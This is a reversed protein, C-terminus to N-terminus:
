LDDFEFEIKIRNTKSEMQILLQIFKHGFKQAVLEQLEFIKDDLLLPEDEISASAPRIKEGSYLFGSNAIHGDGIDFVFALLDWENDIVKKCRLLLEGITLIYKDEIM